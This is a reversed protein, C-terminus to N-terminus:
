ALTLLVTQTHAAGPSFHVQGLVESGMLPTPTPAPVRLRYAPAAPLYLPSRPSSGQARKRLPCPRRWLPKWTGKTLDWVQEWPALPFRLKVQSM